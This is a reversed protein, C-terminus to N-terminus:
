SGQPGMLIFKHLKFTEDDERNLPPCSCACGNQQLTFNWVGFSSKANDLTATYLRDTRKGHASSLYCDIPYGFSNHRQGFSFGPFLQNRINWWFTRGRFSYFQEAAFALIQLSIPGWRFSLHEKFSATTMTLEHRGSFNQSKMLFRTRSPSVFEQENFVKSSNLYCKPLPSISPIFWTPVEKLKPPTPTRTPIHRYSPLFNLQCNLATPKHGLLGLGLAFYKVVVSSGWWLLVSWGSRWVSSGPDSILDINSNLAPGDVFNGSWSVQARKHAWHWGQIWCFWPTDRAGDIM